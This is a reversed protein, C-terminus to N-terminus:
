LAAPVAGCPLTSRHAIWRLLLGAPPPPASDPPFLPTVPTLVGM